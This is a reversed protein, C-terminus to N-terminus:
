PQVIKFEIRRNMARGNPTANLGIPEDPGVGEITLREPGINKEVLYLKVAAARQRSLEMNRARSGSSDTHGRIKLKLSPHQELV